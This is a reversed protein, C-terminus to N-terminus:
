SVPHVVFDLGLSNGVFNTFHVVKTVCKLIFVFIYSFTEYLTTAVFCATCVVKIEELPSLWASIEFRTCPEVVFLWSQLVINSWVKSFAVDHKQSQLVM